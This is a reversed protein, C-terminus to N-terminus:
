APSIENNWVQTAKGNSWVLRFVWHRYLAAAVKIKVNADDRMFGKVEHFETRGDNRIVLFDPHYFTKDALRIGCPHSKWDRIEGLLRKLELDAAYRAETKNLGQENVLIRKPKKAIAHRIEAPLKKLAEASLRIAM